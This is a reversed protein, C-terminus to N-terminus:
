LNLSIQLVPATTLNHHLSPNYWYLTVICPRTDSLLHGCRSVTGVGSSYISGWRIKSKARPEENARGRLRNQEDQKPVKSKRRTKNGIFLWSDLAFDLPSTNSRSPVPPQDRTLDPRHYILQWGMMISLYYIYYINMCHSEPPHNPACKDLTVSGNSHRWRWSLSTVPSPDWAQHCCRCRAVGGYRARTVVVLLLRVAGM